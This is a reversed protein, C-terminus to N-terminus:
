AGSDCTQTGASRLRSATEEGMTSNKFFDEYHGRRIDLSAKQRALARWCLHFHAGSALKSEVAMQFSHFGLSFVPNLNCPEAM